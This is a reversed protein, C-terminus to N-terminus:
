RARRLDLTTELGSDFSMNIKTVFYKHTSTSMNRSPWYISVMDGVQLAPNGFINVSINDAPQGWHKTIFNGYDKAHAESQIWKSDVELVVEGRKRIDESNKVETQRTEEEVVLQGFVMMQQEVSEGFAVSTDEGNLVALDRGANAVRFTASFPDFSNSIEYADWDNTLYVYPRIAPYKDFKVDFTRIEHCYAGFEDFFWNIKTSSSRNVEKEAYGSTFGGRKKNYFTSDGVDPPSATNNTYFYEWLAGSNGRVFTGWNGSTFYGTKTDIFNLFNVGNVLLNFVRSEKNYTVDVDFWQGPVINLDIGRIGAPTDPIAIRTGDAYMRYVRINAVNGKLIQTAMRTTNFEVYYGSKRDSQQHVFIGATQHLSQINAFRMRCGYSTYQDTYSGRRSMLYSEYTGNLNPGMLVLSSQEQRQYLNTDRVTNDSQKLYGTWGQIDITHAKALTGDQGRLCNKLEGTYRNQSRSLIDSDADIGKQQEVSTINQYRAVGGKWSKYTKGTWSIFEGEINMTGIFPWDHAANPDIQITSDSATISKQLRAAQLAVTGDPSWLVSNIPTTDYQYKITSESDPDADFYTPTTGGTPTRREVRVVKENTVKPSYTIQVKNIVEDYEHSLDVINTRVANGGQQEGYLTWDANGALKDYLADKALYRLTGNEDFYVAGVSARCIEGIADWVTTDNTFWVYPILPERSDSTSISYNTFGARKLLEIIIQPATKDTLLVPLIKIDQLFKAGDFCDLTVQTNTTDLGWSNTYFVGQSMVEQGGGYATADYTYSVRIAANIDMLGYYPSTANEINYTGATNDLVITASNASNLGVPSAQDVEQMSKEVEVSIVDSTLNKELRASVEIISLHEDPATMATVSLRVGRVTTTLSQNVATTWASTGQYYLELLGNSSFSATVNSAVTIWSAGNYIDVTWVAPRALTAEAKIVIKNVSVNAGYMVTPQYNTIAYSGSTATASSRGSSQWYKYAAKSSVTRYRSTSNPGAAKAHGVRAKPLGSLPRNPLIISEIPYKKEEATGTEQGSDVVSATVTPSFRNQNWEVIVQPLLKVTLSEEFLRRGATTLTQM